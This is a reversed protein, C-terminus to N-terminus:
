VPDIHIRPPIKRTLYDAKLDWLLCAFTEGISVFETDWSAIDVAYNILTNNWIILCNHFKVNEHHHIDLDGDVPIHCQTSNYNPASM